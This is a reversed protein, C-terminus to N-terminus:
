ARLVALHLDQLRCLRRVERQHHARVRHWQDILPQPWLNHACAAEHDVRNNWYAEWESVTTAPLSVEQHSPTHQVTISVSCALLAHQIRCWDGRCADEPLDTPDHLLRQLGQTAYASDSWLTVQETQDVIWELATALARVEGLDSSQHLGGCIGQAVLRDSTADVVAYSTLAHQVVDPSRCSGDTFLHIPGSSVQYRNVQDVDGQLSLQQRFWGLHPNRSPLLKTRLSVPWSGAPGIVDAFESRAAALGPCHYNRHELSDLAGCLLCTTPKALDYKAQQAPEIFTGARLVALWSKDGPQLKQQAKLLVDYDIGQLGVYDKREALDYAIFQAWADRLTRLLSPQHCEGLHWEVGDHDVILPPEVRWGVLRTIELLKGFPGQTSAGDWNAMYNRWMTELTPQKRLMRQFTTVVTFAQFYGPDCLMSPSLLALRAGPNTGAKNYRLARMAASRLHAIHAWGLTCVSIGHFARPWMAQFLVLQKSYEPAYTRTLLYWYPELADLRLQQDKVTRKKGYTMQAGLDKASERVDWQLSRLEKRSAVTTGWTYTKKLDLELHWMETWTQLAFISTALSTASTDLLELNDVFSLPTVRPCYIRMYTHFSLDIVAMAACSLACGEPYGTNSALPPGVTDGLRFRRSMNDLFSHWLNLVPTPLGLWECLQRVPTRPLSEFAKVLDTVFGTYVMGTQHANELLGQLLFWVETAECGPLFGFQHEDVLSALFTLFGRARLSSWSRYITSYIIVPRFDGVQQSNDKKPLPHVFGTLLPEPWQALSEWSNLQAVLDEALPQPMWQLDKASYGDPGRAAKTKYRGNIKIWDDVTIPRHPYHSRPLYAKAFAFIRDWASAPPPEKWWRHTWYTALAEHLQPPTTHHETIELESGPAVLCEGDTTILDDQINSVPLSISDAKIDFPPKPNPKSVHILTGDESQALVDVATTDELHRLPAKGEPQVLQFIRSRQSQLTIDLLSQRQGAHWKEFKKYNIQYDAFILECDAAPPVHLPLHEPSGQLQVPRHGWWQPFDPKFGPAKKISKWLELRYIQANPTSKGARLAHLLSQLRRLQLFWKQVSRGLLETPQHVESPRSPRLSPFTAERMKPLTTQGRGHCAPPLRGDPTDLHGNFSNEYRRSFDQFTATVSSPLEAPPETYAAFLQALQQLGSPGMTYLSSSAM